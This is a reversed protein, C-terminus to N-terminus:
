VFMKDVRRTNINFKDSTQASHFITYNIRVSISKLM